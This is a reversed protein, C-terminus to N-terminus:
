RHREWDALADFSMDLSKKFHMYLSRCGPRERLEDDALRIARGLNARIEKLRNIKKAAAVVTRTQGNRKAEVAEAQVEPPQDLVKAADSISVQKQDVAEVLQPAGNHVVAKAQRYTERNGFGAREAAIDETRKGAAVEAFNQRLQDRTENDEKDTRQGQRNGLYEEIAQGISVRESPTFDKRLENEAFEGLVISEIHVRVVAIEEWGLTRAALIRREGFILRNDPTLGIPQLLGIEKMSRALAPIDGLDQRHRRGVQITSIPVLEAAAGTSTGNQDPQNTSSKM